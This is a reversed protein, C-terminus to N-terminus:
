VRIVDILVFSLDYEFLLTQMEQLITPFNVQCLRSHESLESVCILLFKLM